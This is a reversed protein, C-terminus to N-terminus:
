EDVEVVVTVIETTPIEVTVTEVVVGASEEATVVVTHVEPEAEVYVVETHIAAEPQHTEVKEAEVYVVETHIAPDPQHTIGGMQTSLVNGDQDVVVM